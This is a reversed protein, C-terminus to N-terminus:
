IKPTVRAATSSSSESAFAASLDFVYADRM